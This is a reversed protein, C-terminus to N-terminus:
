IQSPSGNERRASVERRSMACCGNLNPCIQVIALFVIATDLIFKLCFIPVLYLRWDGSCSEKTKVFPSLSLALTEEALSSRRTWLAVEGGGERM